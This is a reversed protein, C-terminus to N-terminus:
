FIVCSMSFLCDPGNGLLYKKGSKGSEIGGFDEVPCWAAHVDVRWGGIVVYATRTGADPAATFYLAACRAACVSHPVVLSM